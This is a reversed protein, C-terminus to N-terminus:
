TMLILTREGGGRGHGHGGRGRGGGGHGGSGKSWKPLLGADQLQEKSPVRNGKSKAVEVYSNLNKKFWDDGAYASRCTAADVNGSSVEEVM